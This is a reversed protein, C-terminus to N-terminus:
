SQLSAGGTAETRLHRLRAAGLEWGPFWVLSPSTLPQRGRCVSRLGPTQLDLAQAKTFPPCRGATQRAPPGVGALGGSM